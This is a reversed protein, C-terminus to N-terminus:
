SHFYLYLDVLIGSFLSRPSRGVFASNNTSYVYLLTSLAQDLSRTLTLAANQNSGSTHPSQSQTFNCIHCVHRSTVLTSCRCLVM